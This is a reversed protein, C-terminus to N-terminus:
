RFHEVSHFDAAIHKVGAHGVGQGRFVLLDHPQEKTVDLHRARWRGLGWQGGSCCPTGHECGCANSNGTRPRHASSPPWPTAATTGSSPPGGALGPRSLWQASRGLEQARCVLKGAHQRKSAWKFIPGSSHLRCRKYNQETSDQPHDHKSHLVKPPFRAPAAPRRTPRPPGSM